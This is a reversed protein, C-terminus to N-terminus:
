DPRFRDEEESPRELGRYNITVTLGRRAATWRCYKGWDSLPNSFISTFKCPFRPRRVAFSSDPSLRPAGVKAATIRVYREADKKKIVIGPYSFIRDPGDASPTPVLSLDAKM